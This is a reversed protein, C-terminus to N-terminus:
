GAAVAATAETAEAMADDDDKQGKFTLLV